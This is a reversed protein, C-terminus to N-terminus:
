GYLHLLDPLERAGSVASSHWGAQRPDLLCHHHTPGAAACLPYDRDHCLGQGPVASQLQFGLRKLDDLLGQLIDLKARGPLVYRLALTLRVDRWVVYASAVRTFHSTGQKAQGRCAVARLDARKGYFPEGHFDIAVELDARKMSLPISEALIANMEAEQQLLNEVRMAENLYRRITNSDAVQELDACAAEISSREASAKLVVDLIMETTCCYGKVELTLHKQLTKMAQHRVDKANLQYEPIM